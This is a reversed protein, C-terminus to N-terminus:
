RGAPWGSSSNETGNIIPPSGAPNGAPNGPPAVINGATNAYYPPHSRPVTSGAEGTNQSLANKTAKPVCGMCLLLMMGVIVAFSKRSKSAMLGERILNEGRPRPRTEADKGWNGDPQVSKSEGMREFSPLRKYRASCSKWIVDLPM